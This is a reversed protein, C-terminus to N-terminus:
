NRSCLLGKSVYWRFVLLRWAKPFRLTILYFLSLCFSVGWKIGERIISKAYEFTSFSKARLRESSGIGVAQRKFFSFTLRADPVYHHVIADPVYYVKKGDKMLRYFIDKEEAGLLNKGIRGLDVNFVGYDTFVSRRFAMNAGIPFSRNKFLQVQDGRDISSTLSVLFHSMWRPRKTEFDPYIRGGSAMADPYKEFFNSMNQLYDPEAKADDDMFIVIDGMSEAIGRNRAYSLGQTKEVFYRYRFDPKDAGYHECLSATNDTSNNNILLVEYKSKDFIQVNLSDLAALICEERNYTCIIVSLIPKDRNM